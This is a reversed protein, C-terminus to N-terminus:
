VTKSIEEFIGRAIKIAQEADKQTPLGEPLTGPLADPYRTPIYFRDLLVIEERKSKHFNKPLLSLLDTLKHTHPPMQGKSLIMAKLSKEACQEAHFCAQNYIGEQLALEAMKLDEAVFTLWGRIEDKM